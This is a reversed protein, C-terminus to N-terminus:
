KERGKKILKKIFAEPNLLMDSIEQDSYQSSGEEEMIFDLGEKEPNEEFLIDEWSDDTEHYYYRSGEQRIWSPGSDLVKKVSDKDCNSLDVIQALYLGVTPFQQLAMKVKICVSNTLSTKQKVIKKDTNIPLSYDIVDVGTNRDVVDSGHYTSLFKCFVKLSYLVNANSNRGFDSFGLLQNIMTEVHNRDTCCFIDVCEGHKRFFSEASHISYIFGKITLPKYQKQNCWDVFDEQICLKKRHSEEIRSFRSHHLEKMEKSINRDQSTIIQQQFGDKSNKMNTHIRSDCTIDKQNQINDIVKKQYCESSLLRAYNYLGSELVVVRGKFKERIEPNTKVMGTIHDITKEDTIDFIDKEILGKKIAYNSFEMITSLIIDERSKNRVSKELQNKFIDLQSNNNVGRIDNM